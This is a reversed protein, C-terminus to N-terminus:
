LAAKAKRLIQAMRHWERIRKEGLAYVGVLFLGLLVGPVLVIFVASDNLRALTFAAAAIILAGGALLVLSYLLRDFWRRSSDWRLFDNIARRDSGDLLM